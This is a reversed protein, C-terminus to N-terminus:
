VKGGLLTRVMKMKQEHALGAHIGISNKIKTFSGDLSNTTNPIHLEPYREFTFLIPLHRKISDRASRLKRHTYAYKGTKENLSKEKLFSDWKVCWDTFRLTFKAETSKTLTQIIALLEVGAPLLPNLTICRVVIQKQHFHCMQSPIGKFLWSVAVKGDGVIATITFGQETLTKFAIQYCFTSECPVTSMYVNEKAHPDRVVFIWENGVKSADMIAVMARPLPEKQPPEYLKLQNRVWKESKRYKEKLTDVTSYRFCFDFWLKERIRSPDKKKTTQFQTSCEACKYRQIGRFRGNKKVLRSACKPCM